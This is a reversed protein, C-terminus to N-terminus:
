VRVMVPTLPLRLWEAVTVSTTFGLPTWNSLATWEPNLHPMVLTVVGATKGADVFEKMRVPIRALRAASMGAAEPDAKDIVFPGAALAALSFCIALATRTRM